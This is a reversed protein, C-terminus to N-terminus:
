NAHGRRKALTERSKDAKAKHAALQEDTMLKELNERREQARVSDLPRYEYLSCDTMTCAGVQQRWTGKDLEDYICDKCKENIAKQRTM